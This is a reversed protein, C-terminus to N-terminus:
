FTLTPHSFFFDSRSASGCSELFSYHYPQTTQFASNHFLRVDAAADTKLKEFQSRLESYDTRFKQIRRNVVALTLLRLLVPM